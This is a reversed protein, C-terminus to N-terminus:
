RACYMKTTNGTANDLHIGRVRENREQLPIESDLHSHNM